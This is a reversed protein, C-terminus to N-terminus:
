LDQQSTTGKQFPTPQRGSKRETFRVLGAKSAASILPGHSLMFKSDSPDVLLYGDKAVKAREEWMKADQTHQDIRNQQDRKDIESGTKLFAAKVAEQKARVGENACKKGHVDIAQGIDEIAKSGFGM